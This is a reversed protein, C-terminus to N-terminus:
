ESNVGLQECTDSQHGGCSAGGLLQVGVVAKGGVWDCSEMRSEMRMVAEGLVGDGGDVWSEVGMIAKCGMRNGGHVRAEMSMVTEGGVGDGGYMFTEVGVVTKSGVRDADHVGPEVRM